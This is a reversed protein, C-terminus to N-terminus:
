FAGGGGRTREGVGEGNDVKVCRCPSRRLNTICRLASPAPPPAAGALPARGGSISRCNVRLMACPTRCRWLCPTICQSMLGPFM